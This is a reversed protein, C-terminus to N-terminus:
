EWCCLSEGAFAQTPVLAAGIHIKVFGQLRVCVQQQQVRQASSATCGGSRAGFTHVERQLRWSGLGCSFKCAAM